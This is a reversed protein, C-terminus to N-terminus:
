IPLYEIALQMNPRVTDTMQRMNNHNQSSFTVTVPILPTLKM